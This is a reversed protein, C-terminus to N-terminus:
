PRSCCGFAADMYFRSTDRAPEPCSGSQRSGLPSRARSCLEGLVVSPRGTRQSIRRAVDTVDVADVGAASEGALSMALIGPLSICLMFAVLLNRLWIAM